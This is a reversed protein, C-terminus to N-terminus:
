TDKSIFFSKIDRLPKTIKWSTSNEYLSLKENLYKVNSELQIILNDKEKIKLLNIKGFVDFHGTLDFFTKYYKTEEKSSDVEKELFNFIKELGWLKVNTYESRLARKGLYFPIEKVTIEENLDPFIKRLAEVSNIQSFNNLVQKQEFSGRILNAHSFGSENLDNERIRFGVLPEDIIYLDYKLCFRIWMDFDPLSRLRSDYLGVDKYIDAYIMLSPHCLCNQIEFFYRLWEFRNKNESDFIKKFPHDKEYSEGQENIFYAKTFCAKVNTNKSLYELQIELKKPHWVDDSNILAIISGSSHMISNNIAIAAGKNKEFEFLKIRSDAFKKVESVTTDTSGDDTIIIEFNQYSQNLISKITSSIYQAHNYSAIVVSIKKDFNEEM